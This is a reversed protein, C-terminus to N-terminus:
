LLFWKLCLIQKEQKVQSLPKEEKADESKSQRYPSWMEDEEGFM